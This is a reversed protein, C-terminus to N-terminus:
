IKVEICHTYCSSRICHDEEKVETFINHDNDVQIFVVVEQNKQFEDCKQKTLDIKFSTIEHLRDYTWLSKQDRFSKLISWNKQAISQM